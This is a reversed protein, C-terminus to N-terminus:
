SDIPVITLQANFGELRRSKELRLEAIRQHLELRRTSLQREEHALAVAHAKGEPSDADMLDHLGHRRFSLEREQKEADELLTCLAANTLSAIEHTDAHISMVHKDTVVTMM